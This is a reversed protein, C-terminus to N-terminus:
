FGVTVGATVIHNTASSTISDADDMMLGDLTIEADPQVRYRYALDLGINDMAAFRVGGGLQYLLGSTTGDSDAVDGTIVDYGYGVGGGIYPTFSTGTDVDYWLNGLLNYGTTDIDNGDVIFDSVTSKIVSFEVEGRLSPLITTGVAGGLIYGIDFDLDFTIGIPIDADYATVEAHPLSAGAFFTAYGRSPADNLPPAVEIMADAAVAQASVLLSALATAVALRRIM